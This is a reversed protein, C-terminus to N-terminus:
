SVGGRDAASVSPRGTLTRLPQMDLESLLRTGSLDLADPFDEPCEAEVDFFRDTTM